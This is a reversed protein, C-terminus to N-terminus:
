LELDVVLLQVREEGVVGLVNGLAAGEDLRLLRQGDARLEQELEGHRLAGLGELQESLDHPTLVVAVLGAHANSEDVRILVLAALELADDLLEHSGREAGLEGALQEVLAEFRSTPRM